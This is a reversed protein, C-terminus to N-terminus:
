LSTIKEILIKTKDQRHGRTRSYRSKSKFKFVRIKKERFDEVIKVNVKAKDVLPTGIHVKDGGIALVEFSVKSDKQAGLKEVALTQGEEVKYQKGGTRIIAWTNM